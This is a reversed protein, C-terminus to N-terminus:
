GFEYTNGGHRFRARRAPSDMRLFRRYGDYVCAKQNLSAGATWSHLCVPCGQYSLASEMGAFYMICLLNMLYVPFIFFDHVILINGMLESRGPTDMSTSFVKVKVGNVGNDFLDDLEYRAIFDYYKKVDPDKICTPIIIMLLMNERKFRETPPLSFNAVSGPKVSHTGEANSPMADICYQLGIRNVPFTVPGMFSQWAPADYIDAITDGNPRPRTFEHNCMKRYKETSLLARLRNKLPFYLVRQLFVTLFSTGTVVYWLNNLVGLFYRLHREM